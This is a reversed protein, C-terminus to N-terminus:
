ECPVERGERLSRDSAELIRVVDRGAAGGSLPKERGDICAIFHRAERLLAEEEDLRPISIDGSRYVPKSPTELRLDVDVGKSYVRVKESPHVDNYLIMKKSGGVLIKRIKIPSLWSVHVHGAIGGEFKVTLHAAEFANRSVHRTGTASVSLPRIGEFLHLMISIDHTALDWLVNVDPQILGLNIRESDFYYLEGLEGKEILEKIKRVAGTYLFTHDVMLLLRQKKALSLLEECERISAAMPKELLVHKGAALAQRALDFHSAVPTAIIVADLAKDNFLEASKKTMKISPYQRVLESLRSEDLDCVYKVRCNEVSSFNRVMNPGWYGVGIVGVAITKHKLAM